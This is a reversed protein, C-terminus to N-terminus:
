LELLRERARWALAQFTGPIEHEDAGGAHGCRATYAIAYAFCAALLAREAPSFARGRAAEYDAVFARAEEALHAAIIAAASDDVRRPM